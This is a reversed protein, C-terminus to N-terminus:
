QLNVWDLSWMLTRTARSPPLVPLMVIWSADHLKADGECRRTPSMPPNQCTLWQVALGIELRAASPRSSFAVRQSPAAERDLAYGPVCLHGSPYELACSVGRVSLVTRGRAVERTNQLRPSLSTSAERIRRVHHAKGRGDTCQEVHLVDHAM